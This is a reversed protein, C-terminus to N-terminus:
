RPRCGPPSFHWAGALDEIANEEPGVFAAGPLVVDGDDEDNEENEGSGSAPEVILGLDAERDVGRLDLEEGFGAFGFDVFHVGADESRGFASWSELVIKVVSELFGAVSEVIAAEGDALDFGDAVFGAGYDGVFDFDAVLGVREEGENHCLWEQSHEQTEVM